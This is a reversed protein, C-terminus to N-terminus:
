CTSAQVRHMRPSTLVLLAKPQSLLYSHSAPLAVVLHVQRGLIRGSNISRKKLCRKTPKLVRSRRKLSQSRERLSTKRLFGTLERKRSLSCSLPGRLSQIRRKRRVRMSGKSSSSGRKRLRARINLLEVIGRVRSRRLSL